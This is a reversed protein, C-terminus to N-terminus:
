PGIVRGMRAAVSTILYLGDEALLFTTDTDEDTIEEGIRKIDLVHVLDPLNANDVVPYSRAPPLDAQSTVTFGDNGLRMIPSQLPLGQIRKLAPLRANHLDLVANGHGHRFQVLIARNGLNSVFDFTDPADLQVSGESKVHNPETVDLIALRTGQNREIYLLARGDNSDHLFMAEGTQRALEPLDAPPVLVINNAFGANAFPASIVGSAVIAIALRRIRQSSLRNANDCM